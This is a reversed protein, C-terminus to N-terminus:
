QIPLWTTQTAPAGDKAEEVGLLSLVTGGTRHIKVWYIGECNWSTNIGPAWTGSGKCTSLSSLVATPSAIYGCVEWDLIGVTTQLQANDTSFNLVIDYTGSLQPAVPRSYWSQGSHGLQLREMMETNNPTGPRGMSVFLSPNGTFGTSEVVLTHEPRFDGPLTKVIIVEASKRDPPLQSASVKGVYCRIQNGPPFVGPLDDIQIASVVANQSPIATNFQLILKGDAGSTVPFTRDYSHLAGNASAFIDLAVIQLASNASVNFIRQGAATKNPELFQLTVSYNTAAQLQFSYSFSAAFRLHKFPEPQASTVLFSTGGSFNSDHDWVNGTSDTVAATSGCAVRLLTTASIASSCALAATVLRFFM